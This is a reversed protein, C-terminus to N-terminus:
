WLLTIADCDSHRGAALGVLDDAQQFGNSAGTFAAEEAMDLFPFASVWDHRHGKNGAMIFSAGSGISCFSGNMLWDVDARDPM